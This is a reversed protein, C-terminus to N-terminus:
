SGAVKRNVQVSLVAVRGTPVRDVPERGDDASVRWITVNEGYAQAVLLCALAFLKPGLPILAVRYRGLLSHVVSEVKHVIDFPQLLDYGVVSLEGSRMLQDNDLVVRDRFREDESQAVFAVTRAPELTELAALALVNEFGLGIVCAVPASPDVAWGEYGELPGNVMVTEDASSEHSDFRAASYLFDVKLSQEAGVRDLVRVIKSLRDRDFSSIDIAVTAGRGPTVVSRLDSEVMAAFLQASGAFRVSANEEFFSRNIGYDFREPGSYAYAFIADFRRRMAQSVFSSRAEYGCAAFLADYRGPTPNEVFVFESEFM